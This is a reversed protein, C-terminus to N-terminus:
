QLVAKLDSLIMLIQQASIRLLEAYSSGNNKQQYRQLIRDTEAIWGDVALRNNKLWKGIEAESQMNWLKTLTTSMDGAIRSLRGTDSSDVGRKPSLIIATKKRIEDVRAKSLVQSIINLVGSMQFAWQRRTLAGAFYSERVDSILELLKPYNSELAYSEPIANLASMMLIGFICFAQKM